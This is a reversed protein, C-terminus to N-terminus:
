LYHHFMSDRANPNKFMSLESQSFLTDANNDGLQEIIARALCKIWSTAKSRPKQKFHLSFLETNNTMSLLMMIVTPLSIKEGFKNIIFDSFEQFGIDPFPAAQPSALGCPILSTMWLLLALQSSLGTCAIMYVLTSLNGSLGDLYYCLVLM